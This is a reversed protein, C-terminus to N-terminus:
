CEERVKKVGNYIIVRDSNEDDLVLEIALKHRTLTFM